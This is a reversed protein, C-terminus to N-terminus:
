TSFSALPCGYGYWSALLLHSLHKSSYMEWALSVDSPLAQPGCNAAAENAKQMASNLQYQSAGGACGSLVLIVLLKYINSMTGVKLYGM